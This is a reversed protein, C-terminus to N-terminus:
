RPECGRTVSSGWMLNLCGTNVIRCRLSRNVISCCMHGGGRPDRRGHLSRVPVPVPGRHGFQRALLLMTMRGNM